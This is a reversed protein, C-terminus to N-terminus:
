LRVCLCAGRRIDSRFVIGEPEYVRVLGPPLTGDPVKEKMLDRERDLFSPNFLSPPDDEPVAAM